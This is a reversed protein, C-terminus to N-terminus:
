VNIILRMNQDYYPQYLLSVANCYFVETDNYWCCILMHNLDTFPHSPLIILLTSGTYGVIIYPSHRYLEMYKYGATAIEGRRSLAGM